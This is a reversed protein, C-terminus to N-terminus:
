CTDRVTVDASPASHFTRDCGRLKWPCWSKHSEFVNEELAKWTSVREEASLEASPNTVTCRSTCTVCQVENRASVGAQSWGQVALGLPSLRPYQAPKSTYSAITFTSLRGLLQERSFPQYTAPSSSSGEGKPNIKRLRRAREKERQVHDLGAMTSFSSPESRKGSSSVVDAVKRRKSGTEPHPQMHLGSRSIPPFAFTDLARITSSTKSSTLHAYPHSGSASEM